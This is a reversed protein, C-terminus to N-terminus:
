TPVNDPLHSLHQVDITDGRLWPKGGTLISLMCFKACNINVNLLSQGLLYKGVFPLSITTSVALIGHVLGYAMGIRNIGLLETLAAFLTTM